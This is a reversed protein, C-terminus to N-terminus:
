RQKAPARFSILKYTAAALPTCDHQTNSALQSTHGDDAQTPSHCGSATPPWPAQLMRITSCSASTHEAKTLTNTDRRLGWAAMRCGNRLATGTRYSWKWSRHDLNTLRSSSTLSRYYTSYGTSVRHCQQSNCFCPSDAGSCYQPAQSVAHMGSEASAPDAPHLVVKSCSRGCAWCVTGVPSAPLM